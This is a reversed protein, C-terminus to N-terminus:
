YEEDFGGECLCNYVIGFINLKFKKRLKHETAEPFTILLFFKWDVFITVFMNISCLSIFIFVYGRIIRDTSNLQSVVGNM